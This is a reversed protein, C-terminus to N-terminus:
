PCPKVEFMSSATSSTASRRTAGRLAACRGDLAAWETRAVRVPKDCRSLCWRLSTSMRGAEAQGPFRRVVVEDLEAFGQGCGTPLTQGVIAGLDLGDLGDDGVTEGIVRRAAIPDALHIAVAISSSLNRLPRM